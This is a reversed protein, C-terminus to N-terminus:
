RSAARRTKREPRGLVLPQGKLGDLNLFRESTGQKDRVRFRWVPLFVLGSDLVQLPFKRLANTEVKKPAVLAQMEADEMDLEGPARTEFAALNDLDVVEVPNQPVAGTFAFGASTYSMLEGTVASFYLNDHREVERPLIWGEKIKAAFGVRYLPYYVLRSSVIEERTFIFMLAALQREARRRAEPELVVLKAAEVPGYLDYEPRLPFAHHFYITQRGRKASKVTGAEELTKLARKVAGEGAELREALEGCTFAAPERQMLECVRQELEQAKDIKGGDEDDPAPPKEEDQKQAPLPQRRPEPRPRRPASFLVPLAEQVTAVPIVEVAQKLEAPLVAVDGRNEAPVLVTAYGAAYAARVKEEIGGVALVKGFISVEGTMAVDPRPIQGRFAAVIGAFYALGASPGDKKVALRMDLVTIDYRRACNRPLDLEVQLQSAAEWAVKISEKSVRSQGGFATVRGTGGRQVSIECSNVTGVGDNTVALIAVEARGVAPGALTDDVTPVVDKDGVDEDGLEVDAIGEELRHRLEPDTAGAIAAEDLTKHETVLWRTNLEVPRHFEDPSFVISQGPKLTRLRDTIADAGDPTLAKLHNYVKKIDQRVTLRGLFWTSVQGLAKYDIDGPSQTAALCSVGHKRGQRFLLSLADKCTPKRVPPMYPAVEDVYFLVQPTQSPHRVMWRYLAQALQGLFFQRERESPLTNLYIVSLRAKGPATTGPGSGRGLLADIDLPIGGRLLLSQPGMSVMRTRRVAEDILREDAVSAVRNRLETPMAELLRMLAEIGDLPEGSKAAHDIVLSFLTTVTRGDPRRLDFGAFDALAEAAFTQERLVDDPSADQQAAKPGGVGRRTAALPNVSLPIGLASGPTWVVVEAKEAYSSRVDAPVGRALVEAEDAIRGLSAIDGQPDVAIVPLGHRLFEECLVKCTVTKGSGTSGLCVAHRLMANLSLHIAEDAAASRGLFLKTM